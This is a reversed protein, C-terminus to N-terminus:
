GVHHVLRDLKLRLGVVHNAHVSLLRRSPGFDCPFLGFVLVDPTLFHIFHATFVGEVRPGM